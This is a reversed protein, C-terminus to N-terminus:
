AIAGSGVPDAIEVAQKTKRLWDIALLPFQKKYFAVIDRDAGQLAPERDRLNYREMTIRGSVAAVGDTTGKARLETESETHRAVQAEIRLQHGPTVFSGYKVAKVSKLVVVSHAYDETVRILWAAAQSMAELMLVGPLVPFGPFHEALYEEALTLNKIAVIKQGPELELIRDILTFQM